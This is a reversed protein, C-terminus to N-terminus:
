KLFLRLNWKSYKNFEPTNTQMKLRKITGTNMPNTKPLTKFLMLKKTSITATTLFMMIAIITTILLIVIITILITVKTLTPMM